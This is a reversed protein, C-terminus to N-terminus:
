RLNENVEERASPICGHIYEYELRKKGGAQFNKTYVHHPTSFLIALFDNVLAV